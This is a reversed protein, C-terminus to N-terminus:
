MCFFTLASRDVVYWELYATPMDLTGCSVRWRGHEVVEAPFAVRNNTPRKRSVHNQGGHRYMNFSWYNEQLGKGPSEDFKALYADGLTRQLALLPYVFTYRFFHSTWPSGDPHCLIYDSPGRQYEPLLDSLAQLWWGLNKGSNTEYAIVMDVVRAQSSKTQALLDLQIVGMGVPIGERPGDNPVTV